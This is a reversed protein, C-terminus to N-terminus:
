KSRELRDAIARLAAVLDSRAEGKRPSWSLLLSVDCFEGEGEVDRYEASAETYDVAVREVARCAAAIDESLWCVEMLIAPDGGAPPESLGATDIGLGIGQEARGM